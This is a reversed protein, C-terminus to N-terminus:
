KWFAPRWYSTQQGRPRPQRRSNEIAGLLADVPTDELQATGQPLAELTNTHYAGAVFEPLDLARVLAPQNSAFSGDGSLELSELAALLRQRAQARTPGFGILKLILPDFASSVQMGAYVGLEIRLGHGDPLRLQQVKGPAPLGSWPHEAYVRAEIAHGVPSVPLNLEALAAGQALRLQCDVLDVGSIAETVAHEVQLRPNIELFWFQSGDFLFEATAVQDIGIARAAALALAYLSERESQNLAPTPGEEIVKQRRRQLSCEREFLHAVQGHRDALLQVEIHRARPLWQEALVSAEGFFRQAQDLSSSLAAALGAAEHVLHMGIGGGGHAPKLLLPLGLAQLSALTAPSADHCPRSPLLPLGGAQMAAACANKDGSLRLVEPKPGIWPVGAVVCAQAFAANEALFGYGPHIAAGRERAATVLASANLYGSQEPLDPIMVVEDALTLLEPHCDDPTCVMVPRLGSERCTRAIRRAIAGRNAILVTDFTQM